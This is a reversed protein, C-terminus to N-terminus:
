LFPIPRTIVIFLLSTTQHFLPNKGEMFTKGYVVKHRLVAISHLVFIYLTVFEILFNFYCFSLLISISFNICILLTPYFFIFLIIELHLPQIRKVQFLNRIFRRREASVFEILFKFYWFSLLISISFNICIFLTPFLIFLILEFHFPQIRKVQFLNRLCRRREASRHVFYM